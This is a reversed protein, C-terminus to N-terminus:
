RTGTFTHKAGVEVPNPFAKSLFPSSHDLESKCNSVEHWGWGRQKYIHKYAFAVTCPRPVVERQLWREGRAGLQVSIKRAAGCHSAVFRQLALLPLKHFLPTLWHRERELMPAATDGKELSSHDTIGGTVVLAQQLLTKLSGSSSPGHCWKSVGEPKKKGM